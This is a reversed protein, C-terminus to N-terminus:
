WTYRLTAIATRGRGYSCGWPTCDLYEKDFLNTVNVDLRLGELKPRLAGFDYGAALDFLTVAPLRMTEDEDGFYSSTYRIGGGLRLGELPGTDVTYDAWLMAQHTPTASVAKGENGDESKTYEADLLSYGAALDLQRWSTKAEVEVGRVTIEGIQKSFFGCTDPFVDCNQHEHDTTLRNQETLHFAAVTLMADVGPPQYKVGVEYQEGTTPEFPKQFYDVGITPTFSQAFSAYPAVGSEFLYLLGVNGTFAGHDSTESYGNDMRFDSTALDYRGGGSLVWGGYEAREQAYFGIQNIDEKAAGDFGLDPVDAGYDPDFIDIPPGANYFYGSRNANRHYRWDAGAFLTHSVQATDFEVQMRQDLAIANMTEKLNYISRNLTRRDAQLDSFLLNRYDTDLRFYRVNQTFVWGEAVQKEFEYGVAYQLTDNKDFDPDGTYRSAPLKGHPNRYFTGDAPLINNFESGTAKRFHTLVTFSTDADPRWSVSPAVFIRNDEVFDVQSESRQLLGNVRYGFQGEPGFADGFDFTGRLLSYSGGQVVVERLPEFTPRKSIMNIIGGPAAQGYLISAPGKLVEVRELGFPEIQPQSRDLGHPVALGDLFKNNYTPFGRIFSDYNSRTDVTVPAFFGPTYLLAESVISAGGRAEIEEAGVVSVARPTKILPAASKTATASETAVYGDIPGTASQGASGVVDLPQLEVAAGAPPATAAPDQPKPPLLLLDADSQQASASSALVLSLLLAPVGRRERLSDRKDFTGM